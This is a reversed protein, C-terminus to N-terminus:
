KLKGIYNTTIKNWRFEHYNTIKLLFVHIKINDYAIRPLM